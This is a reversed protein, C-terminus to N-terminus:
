NLHFVPIVPFCYNFALLPLYNLLFILQSKSNPTLFRVSGCLQFSSFSIFSVSHWARDSVGLAHYLGSSETITSELRGKALIMKFIFYKEFNFYVDLLYSYSNKLFLDTNSNICMYVRICLIYLFECYMCTYM